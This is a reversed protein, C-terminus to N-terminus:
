KQALLNVRESLLPLLSYKGFRENREDAFSDIAREQTGQYDSNGLVSFLIQSLAFIVNNFTCM